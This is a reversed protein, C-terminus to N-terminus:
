KWLRLLLPLPAAPPPLLLLLLLVFAASIRASFNGGFYRNVHETPRLRLL